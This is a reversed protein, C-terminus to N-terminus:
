RDRTPYSASGATREEVIFLLWPQPPSIGYARQYVMRAALALPVLDLKSDGVAM